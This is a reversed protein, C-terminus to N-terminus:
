TCCAAVAIYEVETTSLSVSPKKKSSWSVLCDGIYLAEGSTSKRDDMNGEWDANIYAVLTLENGKPYWIGFDTTGRLYRFIRKM